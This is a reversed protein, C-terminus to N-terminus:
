VLKEMRVGATVVDDSASTCLQISITNKNENTLLAVSKKIQCDVPISTNDACAPLAM